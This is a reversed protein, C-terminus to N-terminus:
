RFAKGAVASMCERYQFHKPSLVENSDKVSSGTTPILLELYHSLLTLQIRRVTDPPVAVQKAFSSSGKPDGELNLSPLSSTNRAAMNLPNKNSHILLSNLINNAVSKIKTLCDLKM